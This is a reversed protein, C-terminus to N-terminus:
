TFVNKSVESFQSNGATCIIHFFDFDVEKLYLLYIMPSKAVTSISRIM